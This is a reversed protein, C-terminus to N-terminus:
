SQQCPTEKGELRRAVEELVKANRESTYASVAVVRVHSALVDDPVNEYGTPETKTKM